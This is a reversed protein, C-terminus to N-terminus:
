LNLAHWELCWKRGTAAHRNLCSHGLCDLTLQRGRRCGQTCPRIAFVPPIRPTTSPMQPASSYRSFRATVPVDRTPTGLLPLYVFWPTASTARTHTRTHTRAAPRAPPRGPLRCAPPREPPRASPRAHPRAPPPRAAPPPGAPYGFRGGMHSAVTALRARGYPQRRRDLRNDYTIPRPVNNRGKVDLALIAVTEM